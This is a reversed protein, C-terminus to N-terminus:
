EAAALEYGRALHYMAKDFFLAMRRNFELVRYSDIPREGVVIEAKGELIPAILSPIDEAKYQNDADTNVIIDAGARVAFDLGAMFARALGRNVTFRIVHNAGAERAVETTRDTSGDDIVLWEVVDVGPLQRPLEALTVGLMAEENYCPIQIILKLM